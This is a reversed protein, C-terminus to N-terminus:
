RSALRADFRFPEVSLIRVNRMRSHDPNLMLNRDQPIIASPASLALKDAAELWADGTRQYWSRGQDGPTDPDPPIDERNIVLMGADDPVDLCVLAFNDPLNVRLSPGFHVFTELVCTSVNLSTYVVGRGRGSNWRAGTERNGGGDLVTAFRRTALRWTIM